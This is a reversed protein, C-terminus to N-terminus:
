WASVQFANCIWEIQYHQIATRHDFTEPKTQTTISSSPTTSPSVVTMAPSHSPIDTKSGSQSIAIVDFRCPHDQWQPYRQLFAEAARHLRRQKNLTVSELPDGYDSRIRFRVEVFVLEGNLTVVLDIEGRRAVFNKAILTAGRERLYHAALAEFCNGKHRGNTQSDIM